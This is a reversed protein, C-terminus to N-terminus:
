PADGPDVRSTPAEYFPPLPPYQNLEPPVALLERIWGECLDRVAALDGQQRLVKFLDFIPLAARLTHSVTCGFAAISWM